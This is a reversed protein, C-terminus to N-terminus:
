IDFAATEDYKGILSDTKEEKVDINILTLGDRCTYSLKEIEENFCLEFGMDASTEIGLKEISTKGQVKLIRYPSSKKKEITISLDEKAIGLTKVVLTYGRDTKFYRQPKQDLVPTSFTSWIRDFLRRFDDELFM